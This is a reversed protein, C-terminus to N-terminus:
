AAKAEEAAKRRETIAGWEHDAAERLEEAQDYQQILDRLKKMSSADVSVYELQMLAHDDPLEKVIESASDIIDSEKNARFYGADNSIEAALDLKGADDLLDWIKPDFYEVDMLKQAQEFLNADM